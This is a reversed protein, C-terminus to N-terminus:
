AQATLRLAQLRFRRFNVAIGVLNLCALSGFVIAYFRSDWARGESSSDFDRSQEPGKQDVTREIVEDIRANWVEPHLSDYLSGLDERTAKGSDLLSRQVLLPRAFKSEWDAYVARLSALEQANSSLRGSTDAAALLTGHVLVAREDNDGGFALYENLSSRAEEFALAVRLRQSEAASERQLNSLGEYSPAQHWLALASGVSAVVLGLFAAVMLGTYLRLKDSSNTRQWTM